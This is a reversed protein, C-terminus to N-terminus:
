ILGDTSFFFSGPRKEYTDSEEAGITWVDKEPGKQGAHFYNFIPFQLYLKQKSVGRYAFRGPLSFFILRKDIVTTPQWERVFCTLNVGM